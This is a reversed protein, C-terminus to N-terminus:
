SKAYISKKRVKNTMPYSCACYVPIISYDNSKWNKKESASDIKRSYGCKGSHRGSKYPEITFQIEFIRMFIMFWCFLRQKESEM